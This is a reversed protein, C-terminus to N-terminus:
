CCLGIELRDLAASEAALDDWDPRRASHARLAPGGPTAATAPRDPESDPRFPIPAPPRTPNVSRPRPPVTTM